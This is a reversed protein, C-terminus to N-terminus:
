RNTTKLKYKEPKSKTREIIGRAELDLKVTEGYWQVGGEFNDKVRSYLAEMLETHTLEAESLISLINEKIFEYKELSIKKNTKGPKPHLTQIHKSEM